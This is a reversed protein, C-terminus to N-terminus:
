LSIMKLAKSTENKLHSLQRINNQIDVSYSKINNIFNLSIGIIVSDELIEKVYIETIVNNMIYSKLTECTTLLNDTYDIQQNLEETYFQLYLELQKSVNNNVNNMCNYFNEIINIFNQINYLLQTLSSITDDINQINRVIEQEIIILNDCKLYFLNLENTLDFLGM